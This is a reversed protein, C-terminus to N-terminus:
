PLARILLSDCRATKIPTDEGRFRVSTRKLQQSEKKHIGKHFLRPFCVTETTKPTFREAFNAGEQLQESIESAKVDGGKLEIPVAVLCNNATDCFFIIYDCRKGTMGHAPFARDADIVIRPSPADTMNVGCGSRSRLTSLNEEGVRTRIENLVESM